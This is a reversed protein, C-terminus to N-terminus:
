TKAKQGVVRRLLRRKCSAIMEAGKFGFLKQTCNYLRREAPVFDPDMLFVKEMLGRYQSQDLDFCVRALSFYSQALSIRYPNSLRGQATLARVAKDLVRHRNSVWMLRNKTSATVAGYRRYISDCGPQYVAKADALAASIFFDTDQAAALSEDWGGVREVVARRFLLANNAVWWGSLLAGLVDEM